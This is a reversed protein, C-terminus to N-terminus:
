GCAGRAGDREALGAGSTSAAGSARAVARVSGHVGGTLWDEGVTLACSGRARGAGVDCTSATVAGGRGHRAGRVGV